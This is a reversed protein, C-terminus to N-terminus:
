AIFDIIVPDHIFVPMIQANRMLAVKEVRRTELDDQHIVVVRTLRDGRELFCFQDLYQIM